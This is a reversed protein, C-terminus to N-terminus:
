LMMALVHYYHGGIAPLLRYVWVVLLRALYVQFGVLTRLLHDYCVVM